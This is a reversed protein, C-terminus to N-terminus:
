SILPVSVNVSRGLSVSNFSPYLDPYDAKSSWRGLYDGGGGVRGFFLEPYQSKLEALKHLIFVTALPYTHGENQTGLLRVGNNWQEIAGVPHLESLVLLSRETVMM